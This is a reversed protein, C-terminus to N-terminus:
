NTKLRKDTIAQYTLGWIDQRLTTRHPVVQTMFMGILENQPDIWFFTGAAGGWFYSGKPLALGSLGQDKITGFGLGFGIGDNLMISTLRAIPPTNGVQDRRMMDITNPSLLRVGDLEGGNLLMKAFRMYDATTSLLGGGGSEFAAQDTYSLLLSPHAPEVGPGTPKALFGAKPFAAPVGERSYLVAQRDKKTPDFRFSTDTMKLPTFIRQELFVGFKQGSAVEVLRGLVDTAISYNWKTGPDFKLPLKGLDAVFGQLDKTPGGIDAKRYLAGVPTRDFIGYTFGARHTLVDNITPQRAAKRVPPNGKGNTADYVKLNALEPIYKAIPEHPLLKGEEFLMMVAVSTIPKTMSYIHFITDDMIPAQAALDRYGWNKEYVMRDNQVILARAGAVEQADIAAQYHADIRALRSPDFDLNKSNGFILAVVAALAAALLAINIRTQPTM